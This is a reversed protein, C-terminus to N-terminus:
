NDKETQHYYMEIPLRGSARDALKPECIEQLSTKAMDNKGNSLNLARKFWQRAAAYDGVQLYHWGINSVVWNGNPDLTEAISYYKEAEAHRGLKDLCMGSRLPCLESYPNLRAGLGYYKLAKQALEAYNDGDEWSQLRYCEGINYATLFNKPESALAKELAAVQADSYPPLVEARDTAIMEGTRGWAQVGFYVIFAGLVVTAAGQVPLRARVWYRKTAHRLNSAALGLIVTGVLANAPVHLNFDVLSHAALAALAGLAGLFIAYRTSMSNGFDSEARRVHPWSQKLGFIFVGAGVAVLLGGALGFEDLLELYDNHAHEPRVQLAEPRYQRYRYDFQGPGVGWWPHAEWMHAAGAWTQLRSAADVVTLEATDRAEMRHQFTISHSLYYKSFIGLGAGLALLVILARLRHNRHCLLFGLLVMVGVGGAAWGGRSFTVVLGAAITLTAYTLLIRAIASIRGVLVFALTLPLVLELFGAFHDPNIFTGTGRGPYPASLNWVLNSHHCFQGVAYSAALVAVAALTYVVAETAEQDYLNSIVALLMFGYLLMRMLELRASYEIESTFYRIVAYLVFAVVVWAVPPWLLMPKYGGWLRALWLGAVGMALVQLVLFTWTYVGGFALPAFVLAALVLTLIGRECWWDINKRTFVM